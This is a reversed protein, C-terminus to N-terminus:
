SNKATSVGCATFQVTVTGTATGKTVTITLTGGDFRPTATCSANFHLSSTTVSATYTSGGEAWSSTGTINWTGSPLTQDAQISGPVDATFTSTWTRAHTASTGDPFVYADTFNTERNTLTTTDRNTLRTGNWTESSRAGSRNRVRVVSTLVRKVAHDAVTKTSDLIDITGTLTDTEASYSLVCASLTFRVSDPVGDGDTDTPSAPSRTPTCQPGSSLAVNGVPPADSYVATGGTLTADAVEGEAALAVAAGLYGAQQQTLLTSPTSTGSSCAATGLAVAAAFGVLGLSSTRVQPM